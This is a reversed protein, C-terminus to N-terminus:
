VHARGIEIIGNNILGIDDLEKGTRARNEGKLTILNDINEIIMTAKM